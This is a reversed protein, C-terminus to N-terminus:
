MEGEIPLLGLFWDELAQLTSGSPQKELKVDDSVWHISGDDQEQLHWANRLHFDVQILERLKQNLEKSRILLAMETNLRLSRPDLNASGIMSLYDDILIFKAHLGLHKTDVPMQMYVHRDKALARVEHLDAGHQILRHIHKRYVSHAALHNNSRISNTLIRVQVGRKEAREIAAEMEQTPVFYASILILEERAQDFLKMLETSLQVPLEDALKPNDPAPEDALLVVEGTFANEAIERWALIRQGADEDLIRKATVKVWQAYEDPSLGGRREEILLDEPFSWNNNWFNDFTDSLTTVHPGGLLLELDRFNAKEHAGFYENALNRGGMIAVRNDVILAKNHMRHDLRGFEGLNMLQRVVVSDYRRRFPNYIRYEINPHHDINWIEEAHSSTFTDDLLLRVRVGRDAADFLHRLVSLGVSDDDWLFTQLDISEMASDIARLRWEIAEDGENLLHIWDDARIQEISTWLAASSPPTAYSEPLEVPKLTACGALFLSLFTGTSIRLSARCKKTQAPM